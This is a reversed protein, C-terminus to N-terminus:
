RISEAPQDPMKPVEIEIDRALDDGLNDFKEATDAIVWGILAVGAVIGLVTQGSGSPNTDEGPEAARYGFLSFVRPDTSYLPVRFGADTALTHTVQSGSRPRWSLYFNSSARKGGMTLEYQFVTIDEDALSAAGCGVSVVVILARLMLKCACTKSSLKTTHM